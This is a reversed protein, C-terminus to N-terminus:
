YQGDKKTRRLMEAELRTAIHQQVEETPPASGETLIAPTESVRRNKSSFTLLWIFFVVITFAFSLILFVSGINASNEFTLLSLGLIAVLVISAFGIISLRQSKSRLSPQSAPPETSGHNAGVTGRFDIWQFQSLEFPLPTEDLLLPLLDKEQKIAEKWENSVEISKSAHDCWFVVVLQAENLARTIESRWKKGPRIHDIDQFVFTSNIRLLKVVPGVLSADAHSYSVFVNTSDGSM